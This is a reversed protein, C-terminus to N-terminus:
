LFLMPAHGYSPSVVFTFHQIIMALVIKAADLALILGVRIRPGLTFPCFSALHKRPEM